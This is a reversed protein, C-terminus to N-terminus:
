PVACTARQDRHCSCACCVSTCVFACLGLVSRFHGIEKPLYANYYLPGKGKRRFEVKHKGTTVEEGKLVLKNDYSFLNEKSIKVEKKKEGDIFIEVTM